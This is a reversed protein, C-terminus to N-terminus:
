TIRLFQIFFLACSIFGLSLVILGLRRKSKLRYWMYYSSLVMVIVGAALADMALVWITTVVWDRESAPQNYRSGSFTHFVRFTAWGSNDFRRVEARKNGLDIRVQSADTPRSINFAL